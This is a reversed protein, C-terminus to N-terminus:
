RTRLVSARCAANFKAISEAPTAALAEIEKKSKIGLEKEVANEVPLGHCDWGFTRAVAYGRMAWNRNVTDKITSALMHGYHPLGNAFPPGDYFSFVPSASRQAVSREFIHQEDWDRLLQEEAEVFSNPTAM